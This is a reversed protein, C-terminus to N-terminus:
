ALSLDLFSSISAQMYKYPNGCSARGAGVAAGGATIGGAKIGGAQKHGCGETQSSHNYQLLSRGPPM